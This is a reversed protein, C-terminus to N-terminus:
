ILLTMLPDKEIHKKQVEAFYDILPQFEHADAKELADIYKVKAEGRLVTFPFLGHKILILSALLRAIRGNGDQFPDITTFAHHFWPV